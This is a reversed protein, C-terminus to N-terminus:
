RHFIYSVNEISTAMLTRGVFGDAGKSISDILQAAEMVIWKSPRIIMRHLGVDRLAELV